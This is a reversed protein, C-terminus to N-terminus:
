KTDTLLTEVDSLTYGNAALFTFYATIAARPNRWTHVDTSDEYAALIMGLTLVQARAESAGETVSPQEGRGTSTGISLLDRGLRHGSEFARRVSHDARAIETAIFVASGKPPTKRTLFTRLWDRRVTEASRWAKNNAVVNRREAKMEETQPGKATTTATYTYADRHGYAAPNACAYRVVTVTAWRSGDSDADEDDDEQDQTDDEDDLTDDTIVTGDPRVWAGETTIYAVHGDCTVHTQPTLQEDGDFLRHLAKATDSHRPPDIVTLGALHLEAILTEREIRETKEDRIRQAVHAFQGTKAAAVLAKVADPETDFEAVVAAQALDLFDYRAAAARALESKAVTLAHDVDVRKAKTTKTIQAASMGFAHLQEIAAVQDSRSLGSRHQNEAYQKVIRDIQDDDEDGVVDVPVTAQQAEIAALTRRHGYRVRLGGDATRVATIPQLVGNDRISDILTKDVTTTLRINTDILLTAPDVHIRVATTTNTTVSM